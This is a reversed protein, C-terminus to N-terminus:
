LVLVWLLSVTQEPTRTVEVVLGWTDPPRHPAHPTMAPVLLHEGDRIVQAQRKGGQISELLMDGKLRSFLEDSPDVHFDCRAHPGRIIM